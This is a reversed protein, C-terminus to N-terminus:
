RNEEPNAYELICYLNFNNMDPKQLSCTWALAGGSIFHRYGMDYLAQIGERSRRKFDICRPDSELFRLANKATSPRHIRMAKSTASQTAKGYEGYDVM